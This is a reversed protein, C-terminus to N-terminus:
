QFNAHVANLAAQDISVGARDQIDTALARFLDQAVDQAAQDGFFRALQQAQPSETEAPLIDDLRVVIASDGTAIAATEAPRMTFVRELVEPPLDSGFSTRSLGTETRQELGMEEFSADGALPALLAEAQELAANARAQADYAARVEDRVEDFTYPAAEAIGDVRLAFVGGDGLEAIEPYDGEEAAEAAARFAEYGTVTGEARSNWDIQGLEMDTTEALEELTVGGALEDDFGQAQQEVVRRARDLALEGRLDPLADEFSTEQAPLVANVRYLAVGLDSQAPGTVSGVEAAFVTEAAEGLDARSVDGLDVDALDLDRKAVLDEFTVEGAAIREAADQAAAENAFVLREALRREPMNYQASREEYAARLSDEDVEVTEVIMEPTLWAYTIDKTRPRTFAGINEEYFARLDDETAETTGTDLDGADASVEAWSFSRREGTYAILTDLYAPPMKIGALVAGQLLTSASEGRLQEEFERESLGANELTMRYAERNFSGDTGRFAQIARLDQALKDDGVSIGLTDAEEKLAATVVMQSLVQQPINRAQAQQFTMAGGQQAEIARIENQLSRAYTSVPIPTEGVSGISRLNGSFSTAGFGGLALLLLGLLLWGAMGGVKGTKRAM